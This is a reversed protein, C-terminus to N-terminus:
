CFPQPRCFIRRVPLSEGSVGHVPIAYLIYIGPKSDNDDNILSEFDSELMTNSEEICINYGLPVKPLESGPLDWDIFPKNSCDFDSIEDKSFGPQSIIASIKDLKILVQNYDNLFDYPLTNVSRSMPKFFSATFQSVVIYIGSFASLMVVALVLEPITMGKSLLSSQNIKKNKLYKIM